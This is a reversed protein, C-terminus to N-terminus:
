RSNDCYKRAEKHKQIEATKVYDVLIEMAEISLNSSKDAEPNFLINLKHMTVISNCLEVAQIFNMM